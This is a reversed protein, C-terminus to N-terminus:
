CHGTTLPCHGTPLSFTMAARTGHVTWQGGVVLKGTRPTHRLLCVVKRLDLVLNLEQRPCQM